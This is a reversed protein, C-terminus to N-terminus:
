GRLKRMFDEISPVTKGGPQSIGHQEWEGVGLLPNRFAALLVERVLAVESSQLPPNRPEFVERLFTSAFFLKRESQELWAIFNGLRAPQEVAKLFFGVGVGGGTESRNAMDTPENAALQLSALHSTLEVGDDASRLLELEASRFQFVIEYLRTPFLRYAPCNSDVWLGYSSLEHNLHERIQANVRRIDAASWIDIDVNHFVSKVAMRLVGESERSGDQRFSGGIEADIEGLNGASEFIDARGNFHNVFIVPDKITIPYLFKAVGMDSSSTSIGAFERRVEVSVFGIQQSLSLVEATAGKEFLPLRVVEGPLYVEVFSQADVIEQDRAVLGITGQPILASKAMGKARGIKDIKRAIKVTVNINFTEAM